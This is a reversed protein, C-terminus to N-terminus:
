LYMFPSDSIVHTIGSPNVSIGLWLDGEMDLDFAERLRRDPLEIEVNAADGDVDITIQEAYGLLLMTTVDTVDFVEEGNVVIRVRDSQFGDQLDIHLTKVSSGENFRDTVGCASVLAVCICLLCALRSPKISPGLNVAASKGIVCM